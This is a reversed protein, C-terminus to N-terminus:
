QKNFNFFVSEGAKIETIVIIEENGDSLKLYCTNPPTEGESIAILEFKNNGKKIPLKIKHKANKIELQALVIQNNHKLQIVDGDEINNDWIDLYVFEGAWNINLSEGKKLKTAGKDVFDTLGKIKDKEEENINKTLKEDELMEFVKASILKLEGNVCQEGNNYFGEFEGSLYSQNKLSRIKLDNVHVFCFDKEDANSKTTLNKTEKFSVLKGNKSVAGEISSKTMNMGFIDTQSIGSLKGNENVAFDIKYTVSEGHETSLLGVFKYEENQATVSSALILLSIFIPKINIM